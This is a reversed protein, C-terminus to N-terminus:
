RFSIDDLAIDTFSGTVNSLHQVMCKINTGFTATHSIPAIREVGGVMLRAQTTSTLEIKIVTNSADGPFHYSGLDTTTGSSDVGAFDILVDSGAGNIYAYVVNKQPRLSVAEPNNDDANYIAVVAFSTAATTSRALVNTWEFYRGSQHSLSNASYYINRTITGDTSQLHGKLTNSQINFYSGSTMKAPNLQYLATWYSTSPSSSDAGTFNDTFINSEALVINDMTVPVTMGAIVLDGATANSLTVNDMATAVTMDAISLTGGALTLTVNDMTTAIAMNGIALTMPLISEDVQWYVYDNGVIAAYADMVSQVGADPEAGDGAASPGAVTWTTGPFAAQIAAVIQAANATTGPPGQPGEPGTPGAPGQAGSYGRFGREGQPGQPGTPGQLGEPNQANIVGTSLIEVGVGGKLYLPKTNQADRVGIQGTACALSTILLIIPVIYRKM